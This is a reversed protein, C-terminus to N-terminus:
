PSNTSSCLAARVDARIHDDAGQNFIRAASQCRDAAVNDSLFLADLIRRVAKRRRSKSFFYACARPTFGTRRDPSTGHVSRPPLLMLLRSRQRLHTHFDQIQRNNRVSRLATVVDNLCHGKSVGSPMIANQSPCGPPLAPPCSHSVPVTPYAPIRCCLDDHRCTGKYLAGGDLQTGIARDLRRIRDIELAAQGPIM